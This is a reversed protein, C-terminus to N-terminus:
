NGNNKDGEIPEVSIIRYECDTGLGYIRICEKVSSVVCTQKRWEWGSMADAYEFEIKVM